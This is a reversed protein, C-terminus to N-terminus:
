TPRRRGWAPVASQPPSRQSVALRELRRLLGGLGAQLDALGRGDCLSGVLLIDLGDLLCEDVPQFVGSRETLVKQVDRGVLCLLGEQALASVYGLGVKDGTVTDTLAPRAAM